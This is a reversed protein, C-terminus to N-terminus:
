VTGQTLRKDMRRREPVFRSSLYFVFILLTIFFSVPWGRGGPPWHYSAYALTIGLWTALTGIMASLLLALGTRSTMRIATAAPGILLATSLLAGIVLAGDEVALALVVMFALGIMRVPVGKSRAIEPNVSSLLLPRYLLLLSAVAILGIAVVLPAVAPSILFISGFLILMPASANTTMTDFYLFLAGLGMSFSLVIGTAIDRNRARDGLVEVGTGALLGFSLFGYWANLGILFAGSAGAAGVDTLVHGVFSQGRIVVFVGAMGSVVAVVSGIWLANIVQGSQFFGSNAIAHLWHTM